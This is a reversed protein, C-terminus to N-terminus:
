IILIIEQFLLFTIPGMNSLIGIESLSGLGYVEKLLSPGVDWSRLKLSLYLLLSFSSLFHPLRPIAEFKKRGDGPIISSKLCTYTIKYVIKYSDMM